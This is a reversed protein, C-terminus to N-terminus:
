YPYHETLKERVFSDTRGQCVGKVARAVFTAIFPQGVIFADLPHYKKFAPQM